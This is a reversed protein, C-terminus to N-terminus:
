WHNSNYCYNHACNDNNSFYNTSYYHDCIYNAGTTPVTSTVVSTQTVVPPNMAIYAAAGIAILAVAGLGIYLFSRRDVKKPEQGM